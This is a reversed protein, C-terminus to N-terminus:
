SGTASLRESLWDAMVPIAQSWNDINIHTDGSEEPTYLRLTKDASAIEAYTRHASAVPVMEDNVGHTILVPCRVGALIGELTFAKLRDQAELENRAGTIWVLQRRLPPYCRWLDDYVCYMAGWAVVAKLRPEFAAARMAYYGAMSVGLLGIRDPDIDSRATLYDIAAAVPREYDPITPVGLVRITGGQGPGNFILCALGRSTLWQVGRFFNQEPLADAGSLFIVCPVRGANARQPHFFYGELRHGGYAIAAPEYRHSSLSLGRRFCGVARHYLPLKQPDDPGRMLEAVRYYTFARLYSESATQSRSHQAAEEAVAFVRDAMALFSRTWDERNGSRIAGAIRLLENPDAAGQTSESLLGVLITSFDRADPSDETWYRFM